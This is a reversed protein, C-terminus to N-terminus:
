KSFLLLPERKLQSKKFNVINLFVNEQILKRCATLSDPVPLPPDPFHPPRKVGSAVEGEHGACYGVAVLIAQWLALKAEVPDFESHVSSSFSGSDSFFDSIIQSAGETASAATSAGSSFGEASPGVSQIGESFFYGPSEYFPRFSKTSSASPSLLPDEQVSAVTSFALSNRSSPRRRDTVQLDQLARLILAEGSTRAAVRPSRQPCHTLHM